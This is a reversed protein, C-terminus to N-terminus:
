SEYNSKFNTLLQSLKTSYCVVQDSFKDKLQKFDKETYREDRQDFRLMVKLIPFSKMINETEDPKDNIFLTEEGEYDEGFLDKMIKQKGTEPDATFIINEETLYKKIGSQDVKQQQWDKQGLSLVFTELNNAICYRLFDIAQPLLCKGQKMETILDSAVESKFEINDTKLQEKLVKLYSSLSMVVKENQVRARKYIDRAKSHSYGHLKALQYFQSKKKETDFLTNDFDFIVKNIQSLDTM